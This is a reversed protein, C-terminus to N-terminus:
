FDLTPANKSLLLSMNRLRIFVKTGCFHIMICYVFYMVNIEVSVQYKVLSPM